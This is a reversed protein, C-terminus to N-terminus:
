GQRGFGNTPKKLKLKAVYLGGVQREFSLIVTGDSSLVDARDKKFLIDMGNDCLRGVSMLPRSVAAVQFMTSVTNGDKGSAQLSLLTQGDNPVRAGNGVIFGQGAKSGPSAEVIYGPVDGSHCVHDTAGSDLAVEFEVEIWDAHNVLIEPSQGYGECLCMTDPGIIKSCQEFISGNSQEDCEARFGANLDSLKEVMRAEHPSSCIMGKMVGSRVVDERAPRRSELVTAFKWWGEIGASSNVVQSESASGRPLRHFSEYARRALIIKQCPDVIDNPVQPVPVVDEAEQGGACHHKPEISNRLDHVRAHLINSRKRRQKRSKLAKQVLPDMRADDVSMRAGNILV